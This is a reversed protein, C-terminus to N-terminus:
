GQSAPEDLGARVMYESTARETSTGEALGHIVGTRDTQSRNQNMKVKAIVRSIKLEIGVIGRLQLNLFREPAEDVRWEKPRDAEFKQTLRTVQDLLWEKDDHAVLQGYVYLAEYNWTPVVKHTEYKSPYYEPTVYADVGPFIVVSEGEDTLQWHPNPRGVHGLLSHSDADYQLPLSTVEMGDARATIMHGFGARQLMERSQEDSPIFAEPLYM